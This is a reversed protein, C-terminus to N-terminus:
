RDAMLYNPINVQTHKLAVHKLFKIVEGWRSFDEGTSEGVFNKNGGGFNVPLYSKPYYSNKPNLICFECPIKKIYVCVYLFIKLDANSYRLTSVGQM